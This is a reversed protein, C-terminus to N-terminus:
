DISPAIKTVVLQGYIKGSEFYISRGPKVMKLMAPDSARYEFTRESGDFPRPFRTEITIKGASQDLAIVEGWAKKTSQLDDFLKRDEEAKHHWSEVGDAATPV